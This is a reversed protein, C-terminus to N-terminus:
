GNIDPDLNARKIQEFSLSLMQGDIDMVIKEESIEKLIGRLKNGKASKKNLGALQDDTLKGHISCSIISGIAAEFHDLRKLSRYVGPSSVELIFNDPIWELDECYPSFARDVKVCDDIEATNTKPDRIFVRLTSSGQVFELDYLELDCEAVIKMALETYKQETQSLNKTLEM